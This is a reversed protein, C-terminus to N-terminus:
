FYLMPDLYAKSDAIPIDVNKCNRSSSYRQVEVGQSAYVTFHLHPGTAYGTQGSYGIIEGTNVSQGNSVKILDLHAYLTSLGNPHKILVWKGYSYCGKQADTNGLGEVVGDLSSKVPTGRSARFDVGNHTGSVYLRQADITRGFAQTVFISDLPYKLIGKGASPFSGPDIAIKLQSEFEFLEKEFKEKEAQRSALLAKYESEKNKTQTLLKNKEQKNIDLIQHQDSLDSKLAVLNSKEKEASGKKQALDEKYVALERSQERVKVQFQSISEYEDFVETLSKSSLISEILSKDDNQNMSRITKEIVEINSAIKKEISGIEGSIKQISFNTKSIGTETKKIETTVKQQSIDLTKVANQLTKAEEGVVQVQKEYKRIDEELQKLKENHSDIKQQLEEASQSIATNPGLTPLLISVGILILIKLKLNQKQM